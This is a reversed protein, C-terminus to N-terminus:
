LNYVVGKMNPINRSTEGKVLAWFFSDVVFTPGRRALQSAARKGIGGPAEPSAKGGGGTAVM